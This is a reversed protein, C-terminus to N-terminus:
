APGGAAPGSGNAQGNAQGNTRYRAQGREVPCDLDDGCAHDDCLRCMPFGDAECEVLAELMKETLAGFARQERADLAALARGLICARRELVVRVRRKGRPTVFLCQTRRDEGSRKQVLDARELQQVARAVSSQGLQLRASLQEALIGPEDHVTVLIAAGMGGLGTAEAAHDQIRDALTLALAGVLNPTRETRM